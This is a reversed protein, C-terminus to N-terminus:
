PSPETSHEHLLPIRIPGGLCGRTSPSLHQLHLSSGPAREETSGSSQSLASIGSAGFHTSGVTRRGGFRHCKNERLLQPGTFIKLPVDLRGRVSEIAFFIPM